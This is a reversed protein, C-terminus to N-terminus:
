LNWSPQTWNLSRRRKRRARLKEKDNGRRVLVERLESRCPNANHLQLPLRCIARAGDLSLPPRFCPHQIAAEIGAEQHRRLLDLNRSPMKSRNCGQTSCATLWLYHYLSSLLECNQCIKGESEVAVFTNYILEPYHQGIDVWHQLKEIDALWLCAYCTRFSKKPADIFSPHTNLKDIIKNILRVREAEVLIAGESSSSAM